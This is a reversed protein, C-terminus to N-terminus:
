SPSRLYSHIIRSRIRSICQSFMDSNQLKYPSLILTSKQKVEPLKDDQPVPKSEKTQNETNKLLAFNKWTTYSLEKKHHLM